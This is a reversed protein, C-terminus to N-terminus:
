YHGYFYELQIPLTMMVDSLTM